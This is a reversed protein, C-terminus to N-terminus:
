KFIADGMDKTKLVYSFKKVIIRGTYKKKNDVEKLVLLDGVNAEFDALRIEFNKDGALIAEFYDKYCKKEIRM